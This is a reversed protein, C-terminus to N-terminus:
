SNHEHYQANSNLYALFERRSINKAGMRVFHPSPSQCDILIHGAQRLKHVLYALAARSAEPMLCFMSEGCFVRATLVGYLGGALYWTEGNETMSISNQKERHWVEISHSIGHRHLNIYANQMDKTIWTAHKDNQTNRPVAACLKIVEAFCHNETILFNSKQITKQQKKSLHFDELFLVFRPDPSWWLIPEGEGYWPFIGNEYALILREPSLDGGIALLGDKGAFEHSPFWLDNDLFIYSHM